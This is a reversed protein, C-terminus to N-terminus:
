VLNGIDVYYRKYNKPDLYVDINSGVKFKNSPDNSLLLSKFYYDKNTITDKWNAIIIYPFPNTYGVSFFCRTQIGGPFYGRKIKIVIALVKKSSGDAKIKKGLNERYITSFYYPISIVMFALGWWFAIVWFNNQFIGFVNLLILVICIVFVVVSIQLTGVTTNSYSYRRLYIQSGGDNTGQKIRIDRNIEAIRDFFGAIKKILSDFINDKGM